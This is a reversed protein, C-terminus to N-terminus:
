KQQGNTAQNLLNKVYKLKRILKKNESKLATSLLETHCNGEEDVYDVEYNASNMIIGAGDNFIFQVIKNNLRFLMGHHTAICKKVYVIEDLDCNDEDYKDYHAELVRKDNEEILKKLHQLINVKKKLEKPFEELTYTNMKEKKDISTKPIYNFKGEQNLIIKTSDNFFVGISKNSLVYIVGYKMSYDLWKRVCVKSIFKPSDITKDNSFDHRETAYLDCKPNDKRLDLFKKENNRTTLLPELPKKQITVDKEKIYHKSPVLYLTFKPMLKPIRDINAFFDHSYIEELSPRKDPNPNLIKSILDKAESSLEISKPFEYKNLKIKEYIADEDECDFPATGTLLTFLIVGFSWIDVEYSYSKKLVMEPAIYNSTGCATKRAEEKSNEEISLGFDGVKLEM